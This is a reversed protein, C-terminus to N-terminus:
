NLYDDIGLLELDDGQPEPILPIPEHSFWQAFPVTRLPFKRTRYLAGMYLDSEAAVRGQEFRIRYPLGYHFRAGGVTDKEAFRHRRYLYDECVYVVGEWQTDGCCPAAGLPYLAEWRQMPERETLSVRDATPEDRGLNPASERTLFMARMFRDSYLFDPTFPPREIELRVFLEQKAVDDGHKVERGAADVLSVHFTATRYNGGNFLKENREDNGRYYVGSLRPVFDPRRPIPPAGHDYYTAYHIDEELARYFLQANLQFVQWGLVGCLIALPIAPSMRQTFVRELRSPAGGEHKAFRTRALRV